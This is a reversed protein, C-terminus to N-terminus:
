HFQLCRGIQPQSLLLPSVLWLPSTQNRSQVGFQDASKQAFLFTSCQTEILILSLEQLQVLLGFLSIYGPAIVLLFQMTPHTPITNCHHQYVAAQVVWHALAVGNGQV